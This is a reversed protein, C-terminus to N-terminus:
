PVERRRRSLLAAMDRYTAAVQRQLAAMEKDVKDFKAAHGDCIGAYRTCDTHFQNVSRGMIEEFKNSM